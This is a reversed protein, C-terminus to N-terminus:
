LTKNKDKVPTGASLQKKPQPKPDATIGMRQRRVKQLLGVTRVMDDISATPARPRQQSLGSLAAEIQKENM